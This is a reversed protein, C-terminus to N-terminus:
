AMSGDTGEIQAGRAALTLSRIDIGSDSNGIPAVRLGAEHQAVM